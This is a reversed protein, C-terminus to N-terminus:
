QLARAPEEALVDRYAAAIGEADFLEPAPLGGAFNIVEPRATVALIDRVPSGGVSRVRAALSPPPAPVAASGAPAAPATETVTM